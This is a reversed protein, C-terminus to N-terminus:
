AIIHAKRVNRVLQLIYFILSLNFQTEIEKKNSKSMIQYFGLIYYCISVVNKSSFHLCTILTTSPLVRPRIISTTISILLQLINPKITGLGVHPHSDHKRLPLSINIGNSQMHLIPTSTINTSSYILLSWMFGGRGGGDLFGSQLSSQLVLHHKCLHSM